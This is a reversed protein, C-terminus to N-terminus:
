IGLATIDASGTRPCKERTLFNQSVCISVISEFPVIRLLLGSAAAVCVVFSTGNTTRVKGAGTTKVDGGM